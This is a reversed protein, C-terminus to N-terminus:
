KEEEGTDGSSGRGRGRGANDVQKKKMPTQKKKQKEMKAGKAQKSEKETKREQVASRFGGKAKRVGEGGRRSGYDTWFEERGEGGGRM